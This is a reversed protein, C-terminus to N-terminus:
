RQAASRQGGLLRRGLRAATVLVAVTGFVIVGTRPTVLEGTAGSRALTDAWVVTLAIGPVVGLATGGVYHALRVRTAGLAWNLPPALFLVLRLAVVTWFGNAALRDDLARLRTFRAEFHRQVWASAFYRVILFTATAGTLSAVWGYAFGRARGFVAGGLAIFIVEPMHLFIGAICAGMFVLAGYPAHADVLERMGAVTLYRQLHLFRSAAILAAVFCVLLLPRVLRQM